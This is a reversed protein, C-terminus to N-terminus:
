RRRAEVLQTFKALKEALRQAQTEECNVAPVPKLDTKIEPKSGTGCRFRSSALKARTMVFLTLQVPSRLGSLQEVWGRWRGKRAEADEGDMMGFAPNFVYLNTAQRRRQVISGDELEVTVLKWRRIRRFLGMREGTEIARLVTNRAVGVMRAIRNISPDCRGSPGWLGIHLMWRLVREEAHTMAGSKCGKRKTERFLRELTRSMLRRTEPKFAKYLAQSNGVPIGGHRCTFAGRAARRARTDSAVPMAFEGANAPLRAFPSASLGSARCFSRQWVVELLREPGSQM